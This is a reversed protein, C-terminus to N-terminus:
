LWDDGNRKELVYDSLFVLRPYRHQLKTFKSIIKPLDSPKEIFRLTMSGNKMDKDFATSTTLKKGDHVIQQNAWPFDEILNNAFGDVNIRMAMVDIKTGGFKLNVQSILKEKKYVTATTDEEQKVGLNQMADWALNFDRYFVTESTVPVFIDVDDYPIKYIQDRLSGGAVVAHKFFPIKKLELFIEPPTVFDYM